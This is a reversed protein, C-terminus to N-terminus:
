VVTTSATEDKANAPAQVTTSTSNTNTTATATQSSPEDTSRVSTTRGRRDSSISALSQNSTSRSMTSAPADMLAFLRRLQVMVALYSPDYAALLADWGQVHAEAAVADGLGLKALIASSSLQRILLAHRAMTLSSSTANMGAKLHRQLLIVPAVKITPNVDPKSSLTLKSSFLSDVPMTIMEAQHLLKVDSASLSKCSLMTRNHLTINVGGQLAPLVRVSRNIFKGVEGVVAEAAKIRNERDDPTLEDWGSTEPDTAQAIAQFVALAQVVRPDELAHVVASSVDAQLQHDDPLVLGLDLCDVLLPTQLYANWGADGIAVLEFEHLHQQLVQLLYPRLLVICRELHFLYPSGQGNWSKRLPKASPLPRDRMLAVTRAISQTIGNWQQRIDGAADDPAAVLSAYRVSSRSPSRATSQSALSSVSATRELQRTRNSLMRIHQDQNFLQQQSASLQQHMQMRQGECMRLAHELQMNTNTASRLAEQLETIAHLHVRQLQELQQEQRALQEQYAKIQDNTSSTAAAAILKEKNELEVLLRSVEGEQRQLVENLNEVNKKEKRLATRHQEKLKNMAGKLRAAEDEHQCILQAQQQELEHFRDQWSLGDSSTGNEAITTEGTSRSSRRRRSRTRSRRRASRQGGHESSASNAHHPEERDASASTSKPIATTATSTISEELTPPSVNDSNSQFAAISSKITAVPADAVETPKVASTTRKNLKAITKLGQKFRDSMSGRRPPEETDSIEEVASFYDQQDNDDSTDGAPPDPARVNLDWFCAQQNDIGGCDTCACCGQEQGQQMSLATNM